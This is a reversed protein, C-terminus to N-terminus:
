SQHSFPQQYLYSLTEKTRTVLSDIASGTSDASSVASTDETFDVEASYVSDIKNGLSDAFLLTSSDGTYNIDNIFISGRIQAFLVVPIFCCLFLTIKFFMSTFYNRMCIIFHFYDILNYADFIYKPAFETNLILYM